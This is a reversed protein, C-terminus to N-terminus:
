KKIVLKRGVAINDNKLNNDKKIKDVTTNYKLAIRYLNEGSKVTHTVTKPKPKAPTKKTETKSTKKNNKTEKQPEITTSATDTKVNNDAVT